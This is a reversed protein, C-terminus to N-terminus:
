TNIPKIKHYEDFLIFEEYRMRKCMFDYFSEFDEVFKKDLVGSSYTKFFSLIDKSAGEFDKTFIDLINKLEKNQESVKYFAPYLKEDEKKLHEFLSAKLSILKTKGEKSLVGLEKVEKLAAVIESHERKFEDILTTM